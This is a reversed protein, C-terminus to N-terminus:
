LFRGALVNTADVTDFHCTQCTVPSAVQGPGWTSTGGSQVFVADGGGHKSNHGPGPLGAFHGSEWLYRDFFVHSNPTEATSAYKPPNGHCGGCGLGGAPPSRWDPTTAYAPTEQGTSHCYVGTCTGTAPDYAAGPANRRKLDDGAVPPVPPLLDVDPGPAGADVTHATESTPHCEGCGFDYSEATAGAGSHLDGYAIGLASPPSAHTAHLADAPPFEHCAACGSGLNPVQKLGDIHRGGAVDITVNDENVTRFHCPHCNGPSPYGSHSAPPYGHCATCARQTGDVATWVPAAVAGGPLTAGHCYVNSCTPGGAAAADYSPQVGPPLQARGLPGAFTVTATSEPRDGFHGQVRQPV